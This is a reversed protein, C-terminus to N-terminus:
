PYTQMYDVISERERSTMIVCVRIAAEFEHGPKSDKQNNKYCTRWKKQGQIVIKTDRLTNKVILDPWKM